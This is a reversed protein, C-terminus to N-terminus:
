PQRATAHRSERPAPAPSRTIPGAGAAPDGRSRGGPRFRAGPEAPRARPYARLRPSYVAALASRLGPAGADREARPSYVAALASRSAPAGPSRRVTAPAPVPIPGLPGAASPDTLLSQFLTTYPFLTSRPPRRIM